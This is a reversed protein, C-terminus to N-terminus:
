VCLCVCARCRWRSMLASGDDDACCAGAIVQTESYSQKSMKKQATYGKEALRRVITKRGVKTKLKKPLAKHIKRATVGHGPPRVQKFKKLITKDEAECM